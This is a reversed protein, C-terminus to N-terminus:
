HMEAPVQAEVAANALTRAWSRARELEGSALEPKEGTAPDAKGTVFFSEAPAIMRAGLHRLKRSISVAASGTLWRAAQIRTDFAAAAVNRLSGRAMRAFLQVVPSTMRHVETPGGIVILDVQELSIAPAEDAPLLQVEGGAHLEEAIAEAVKQTNGYRSGYIVVSNM